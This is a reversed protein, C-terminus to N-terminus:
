VELFFEKEDGHALGDRVGRDGGLWVSPWWVGFMARVVRGGAVCALVVVPISVSVVGTGVVVVCVIRAAVAVAVAVGACLVVVVVALAVIRRIMSGRTVMIWVFELTVSVAHIPVNETAGFVATVPALVELGHSSELLECAFKGVRRVELAKELGGRCCRDNGFRGQGGRFSPSLDLVQYELFFDLLVDCTATSEAAVADGDPFDDDTM